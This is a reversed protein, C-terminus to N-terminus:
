STSNWGMEVAFASENFTKKEALSKRVGKELVSKAFLIYYHLDTYATNLRDIRGHSQWWLKYSYPMSWFCIADTDVCEWAEAGAVYQVLYVWSTTTPIEEHKHGNWEAVQFQPSSTSGSGKQSADPSRKSAGSSTRGSKKRSSGEPSESGESTTPTDTQWGSTKSLTDTEQQSITQSHDKLRWENSEKTQSPPRTSSGTETRLSGSTSSNTASRPVSSSTLSSRTTAEDSTQITSDTGTCEDRRLSSETLSSDKTQRKSGSSTDSLQTLNHTNGWRDQIQQTTRSEPRSSSKSMKPSTHATDAETSSETDRLGNPTSQQTSEMSLHLNERLTTEYLIEESHSQQREDKQECGDSPIQLLTQNERLGEPSLLYDWDDVPSETVDKPSVSTQTEDRVHALTRLIELEYDFNYFVILKPHTKLLTEVARLRSDDSYVVKRMVRFLESADTLPRKEYVHWRKKVLEEVLEKDYTVPVEHTHRTTHRDYPMDVLLENRWRVLKPVQRYGTVQYYRGTWRQLVHDEKFQTINKIFGNARFVPVYDLWNDGPTASLMIWRNAQSIKYFAKVWAGTGVLRQEDFIVFADKLEEYKKINEWSDVIVVAGMTLEPDKHMGVEAWLDQWDGKDRKKATTIVLVAKPAENALYYAVATHSKGVGVGGCLICGNHMKAVAVEQHPRLDFM